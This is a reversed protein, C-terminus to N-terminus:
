TRLHNDMSQDLRHLMTALTRRDAESWDTLILRYLESRTSPSPKAVPGTSPPRSPSTDHRSGNATQPPSMSTATATAAVLSRSGAVGCTGTRSASM